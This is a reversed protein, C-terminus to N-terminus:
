KKGFVSQYEEEEVSKKKKGNNMASIVLAALVYVILYIVIGIVATSGKIDAPLIMSLYFGVATISFHCIVKLPKSLKDSSLLRNASAFLLSFVFFMLTRLSSLLGGDESGGYLAFIFAAYIFTIVTFYTCAQTFTTKWFSRM